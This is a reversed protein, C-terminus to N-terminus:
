TAEFVARELELKDPVRENDLMKVAVRRLLEFTEVLDPSSHKPHGHAAGSRKGYLSRVQKFLEYRAQGPPELYSSLLTSLRFSLEPGNSLFVFELAAWLDVILMERNRRYQGYQIADSVIRFEDSDNHLRSAVPLQHRIRNIAIRYDVPETMQLRFHLDWVEVPEVRAITGEAREIDEVSLDSTYLLRISPSINIKTLFVITSMLKKPDGYRRATDTSVTLQASIDFVFGGAVSKWPGPTHTEAQSHKFAMIPASFMQVEVPELTIGPEIEVRELGNSM